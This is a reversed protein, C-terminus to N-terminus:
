NQKEDGGLYGLDALAQLAAADLKPTEVPKAADRARQSVELRAALLEMLEDIKEPNSKALDTLEDPDDPLYYLEFYPGEIEAKARRVLDGYDPRSKFESWDGETFPGDLLPSYGPVNAELWERSLRPDTLISAASGTTSPFSQVLKWGESEIMYQTCHGGESFTPVPALPEGEIAPALSRGHLGPHETSETLSLITPLVDVLQVSADVRLGASRAKPLKMVLPVQIIDEFMRGHSYFDHKFSEGHDGSIVILTNDYMDAAKLQDCIQRIYADVKLIAEDYLAIIPEVPMQRPLPAKFISANPDSPELGQRAQERASEIDALTLAMWRPIQQYSQYAGDAPILELLTEDWDRPFRGLWPDEPWYPGHADLAHIFCFSPQSTDIADLWQGLHKSVLAIGGDPDDLSFNVPSKDYLDFGQDFRFKDLLWHTDVFGGTQYGRARLAEALTWRNPALQWNDFALEEQGANLEVGKRLHSTPYLGSLVSLYSPLTWPANAIAREFVVGEDALERLFPTTDREYGYVSLHRAAFTDISIFLVHPRERTSADHLTLTDLQFRSDGTWTLQVSHVRGADLDALPVIVDFASEVDFDKATVSALTGTTVDLTALEFTLRGPGSSTGSIALEGGNAPDVVYRIGAGNSLALLGAYPDNEVLVQRDDYRVEALYVTDWGTLQGVREREVSLELNNPGPRWVLAETEIRVTKLEPTLQFQWDALSQGNLKVTVLGLSDGFPQAGLDLEVTRPRRDIAPLNLIATPHTTGVILRGDPSVLTEGQNWGALGYLGWQRGKTPLLRGPQELKEDPGRRLLDVSSTLKTSTKPLLLAWLGWAVLCVCLVPFLRRLMASSIM